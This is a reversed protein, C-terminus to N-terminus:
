EALLSDVAELVDAVAFPKRLTRAAGQSEAVRLFDYNEEEGHATMAVIQADPDERRIDATTQLGDRGPMFLDTIVVDARSERYSAVGEDGNAAEAVQHGARELLRRLLLRTSADDDIVLIKAM